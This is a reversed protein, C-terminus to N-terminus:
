SQQTISTSATQDSVRWLHKRESERHIALCLREVTAAVFVNEAYLRLTGDPNQILGVGLLERTDEEGIPIPQDRILLNMSTSGNWRSQAEM